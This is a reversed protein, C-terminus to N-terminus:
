TSSIFAFILSLLYLARLQLGLRLGPLPGLKRLTTPTLTLTQKGLTKVTIRDVVRRPTPHGLGLGAARPRLLRRVFTLLPQLPDGGM